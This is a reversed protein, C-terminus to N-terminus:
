GLNVNPSYTLRVGAVATLAGATSLPSPPRDTVTRISSWSEARSRAQSGSGSESDSGSHAISDGHEDDHEGNSREDSALHSDPSGECLQVISELASQPKTPGQADGPQLAFPLPQNPPIAKGVSESGNVDDEDTNDRGSESDSDGLAGGGTYPVSVPMCGRATTEDKTQTRPTYATDEDELIVTKPKVYSDLWLKGSEQQAVKAKRLREGRALREMTGTDFGFNSLPMTGSTQEKPIYIPGSAAGALAFPQPFDDFPVEEEKQKDAVFAIDNKPTWTM